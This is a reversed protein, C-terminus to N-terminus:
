VEVTAREEHWTSVCEDVKSPLEDATCSTLEELLRISESVHAQTLTYVVAAPEREDGSAALVVSVPDTLTRTMMATHKDYFEKLRVDFREAKQAIHKVKHIEVSLMKGMVDRLHASALLRNMQKTKEAESKLSEFQERLIALGDDKPEEPEPKDAPEDEPEAAKPQGFPSAPANPDRLTIPRRIGKDEEWAAKAEETMPPLGLAQRYQEEDNIQPTIAGARVGIGYTDMSQRVEDGESPGEDATPAAQQPGKAAQELTVMASQVFHLDGLPGISARNELARWENLTIEGNFFQEKLADTRTKIDARELGEFVHLFEMTKREEATLLKRNLEQEFPITWRMLTYQRLELAQQEINNNTARLLHGISHPPVGYWRAVDEISFQRSEIFQSDQANFPLTTVDSDPPLIAPKGHKDAGGHVKIWDERFKEADEAKRFKAGKIIIGPRAGNGFYAAGHKEAALGFGISLRAATVVGKGIIGDDSMPSPIHLINEGRIERKAGSDENVLYVLRGDSGRKINQEPPIRSPHIPLLAIPRGGRDRKIEAFGNGWNVQHATRSGRFLMATMDTNPTDHVLSYRPDEPMPQSGGAPMKRFLKLPLSGVATMILMTAAWCASYTMASNQNVYVGAASSNLYTYGTSEDTKFYRDEDDEYPSLVDAQAERQNAFGFFNLLGM